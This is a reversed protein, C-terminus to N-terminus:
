LEELLPLVHDYLYHGMGDENNTYETVADACAKTDEAGNKLCVGWGATELLENDNPMDGFAMVDEAHIGYLKEYEKLGFGKNIQPDCFELMTTQTRFAKWAPSQHAYAWKEAEPMRDAPIRFMIKPCQGAWMQSIDDAAIVAQHNRASSALVNEDIRKVFQKGNRYLFPNLDLPEMMLIIEKITEPQLENFQHIRGSSRDFIQGGNLGIMMDIGPDEFDWNKLKEKIVADYARGSAIGLLIGHKHLIKLASRTLEMMEGDDNVLTGDIDAAILKPLKMDIDKRRFITIM